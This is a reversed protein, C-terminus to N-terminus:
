QLQQLHDNWIGLDKEHRATWAQGLIEVAEETPKGGEIIATRSGEWHEEGFDPEADATPDRPPM